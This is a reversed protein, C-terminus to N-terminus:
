WEYLVPDLYWAGTTFNFYAEISDYDKNRILQRLPRAHQKACKNLPCEDWDKDGRCSGSIILHPILMGDCQGCSLSYPCNKCICDHCHM